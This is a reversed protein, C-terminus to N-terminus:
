KKAPALVTPVKEPHKNLHRALGSFFFLLQEAGEEAMHPAAPGLMRLVANALRSDTQFYIQLSPSYTEAGKAAPKSPHRLVAVAKVPVMPLLPSIKVRGTAYWVRGDSYNAVTRWTLSSGNEDKWTFRGNGLDDIAISPVGVRQWGLAARDPHDLLWTYVKPHATFEDEDYKASLTPQQAIAAVADRHEAAVDPLWPFPNSKVAAASTVPTSKVATRIVTQGTASGAVALGVFIGVLFRPATM